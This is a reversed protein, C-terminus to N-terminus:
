ADGLRSRDDDLPPRPAETAIRFTVERTESLKIEIVRGIGEPWPPPSFDANRAHELLRESTLAMLEAMRVTSANISAQDSVIQERLRAIRALRARALERDLRSAEEGLALAQRSAQALIEEARVQADALKGQIAQVAPAEM